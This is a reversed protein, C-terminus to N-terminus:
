RRALQKEKEQQEKKMKEFQLRYYDMLGTHPLGFLFRRLAIVFADVADDHTGKPFISLEELADKLWIAYEPFFVRGADILTTVTHAMQIKDLNSPREIPVVPLRTNQQLDQIVSQGSAKDEILIATSRFSTHFDIIEQRMQPYKNRKATFDLFYLGTETVGVKFGATRDNAQKDKFATDWCDWVEVFVPLKVTWEAKEEPLHFRKFKEVPIIAGTPAANWDGWRWAAILQPGGAAMLKAEYDPDNRMLIVNDELRAPIFVATGGLEEKPSDFPEMPQAKDIFFHRLWAHGVGGPNATLVMICHIGAASRMTARLMKIAPQTPKGFEDLATPWNGAEEIGIYTYQHGQYKNVDDLRKLYRFKLTSGGPFIWTKTGSRYVGGIAGFIQKSRRILEELEPLSLRFIIGQAQGRTADDLDTEALHSLWKGLQGDSKGGGRAGGYLIIDCPCEILACQPGPSGDERLQPAWIVQQKEEPKELVQRGM